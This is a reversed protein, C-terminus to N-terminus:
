EVLRGYKGSVWGLKDKYVVALWGDSSKQGGYALKAGEHVVGRKDSEVTPDARVYCNGGVIQVYKPQSIQEKLLELNRKLAAITKPGVEGDVTLDNQTQFRRVALETADGFDGDAGWKGCDYGLTILAKQLTVVDSGSMGNKLIRSGLSITVSPAPEPTSPHTKDVYKGYTVNIAAHHNEYLLVDGPLLYNPSRTYKDSTLAKFGAEVFRPKMNRSYTDLPINQLAPINMLYGTAKVNATTSATCDTEVNTTIASPNYDAKKLATWYTSRQTQDYGIHNNLAAAIALKAIQMGVAPNPYRLIVTWPRNYWGKLTYESNQDGAQGGQYKGREDHGTNSIYHTGTSDLYKNYNIAM